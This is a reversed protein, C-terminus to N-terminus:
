AQARVFGSRQMLWQMVYGRPEDVGSVLFSLTYANNLTADLLHRGRGTGCFLIEDNERLMRDAPPMAKVEDQSRIVLPVAALRQDRAAPDRVIDGLTVAKGQRLASTLASAEAVTVTTTWLQPKAEGISDHLEIIVDRLFAKEAAAESSRAHAFFHTLLPAILLLLIRRASVLTPQMILDAHAANFLLENRHQNQRVIIFTGPNLSKANMVISLNDTDSNTGAVIGAVHEIGAACLNQQSARGAVVHTITSSARDVTPDIMVADMGLATVAEHLTRGMRGFGCIIWCGRPVEPYMALTAGPGGIMWENLM